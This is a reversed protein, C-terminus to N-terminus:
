EGISPERVRTETKAHERIKSFERNSKISAPRKAHAHAEEYSECLSEFRLDRTVQKPVQTVEIELFYEKLYGAAESGRVLLALSCRTRM